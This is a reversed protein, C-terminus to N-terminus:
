TNLIFLNGGTDKIIKAYVHSKFLRNKIQNEIKVRYLKNNELKMLSYRSVLLNIQNTSLNKEFLEIGKRLLSRASEKDGINMYINGLNIDLAAKFILNKGYLKDTISKCKKLMDIAKVHKGKASYLVAKAVLVNLVKIHNEGYHARRIDYSRNLINEALDLEGLAVLVCGLSKLVRATEVHAMGLVTEHIKLSRYLYTKAKRYDGYNFLVWGLENLINGVEIHGQGYIDESVSLAKEQYRIAEKYEALRGYVRGLENICLLREKSFPKEVGDLIELAQKLNNKATIFNEVRIEYRGLGYLLKAYESSKEGFQELVSVHALNLYKKRNEYNGMLDYAKSLGLFVKHLFKKETKPLDSAAELISESHSILVRIFGVNKINVMDSEFLASLNKLIKRLLERKESTSVRKQLWKHLLRHISVYQNSSHILSFCSLESLLLEVEIQKETVRNGFLLFTILGRDIKDPLLFSIIKLTEIAKKSTIKSLNMDWTVYAPAHDHVLYPMQKLLEELSEAYISLFYDLSMNNERVYSAAQVIALPLNDLSSVISAVKSKDVPKSANLVSIFLNIAEEDKMMDMHFPSPMKNNRTTIIVDCYNPIYGKISLFDEANDFVVLGNKEEEIWRVVKLVKMEKNDSEDFLGKFEGLQLIENLLVSPKEANFWIKFNYKKDADLAYHKVFTTKGVGGLGYVSIINGQSNNKLKDELQELKTLRPTYFSNKLPINWEFAKHTGRDQFFVIFIVSIISLFVVFALMYRIDFIHEQKHISDARSQNCEYYNDLLDCRSSAGVKERLKLIINDVTRPSLDLDYAISKTKKGSKLGLLIDKERDTIPVRNGSTDKLIIEDM